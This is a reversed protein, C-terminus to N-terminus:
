FSLFSGIDEPEICLIERWVQSAVPIRQHFRGVYVSQCTFTHAECISKHRARNARGAAGGNHRAHILGAYAGMVMATIALLWEWIADPM